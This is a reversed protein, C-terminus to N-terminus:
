YYQRKSQMLLDLEAKAKDATMGSGYVKGNTDVRIKEAHGDLFGLISARNSDHWLAKNSTPKGAAGYFTPEFFLVKLSSANLFPDTYKRGKAKDGSMGLIGPGDTGAYLYSSGFEVYFDTTTSPPADSGRDSPCQFVESDKISAYLARDKDLAADGTGKAGGALGKKATGADKLLATGPFFQDNDDKYQLIGACLQQVQKRCKAAQAERMAGRIAPFLFAALLGIIAIVVLLEVLTFGLSSRPTRLTKM